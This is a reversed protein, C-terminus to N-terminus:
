YANAKLQHLLYALVGGLLTVAMKHLVFGHTLDRHLLLAIFIGIVVPVITKSANVHETTFCATLCYIIPVPFFYVGWEQFGPDTWFLRWIFAVSIFIILLILYIARQKM